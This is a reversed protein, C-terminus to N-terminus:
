WWQAEGDRKELIEERKKGFVGLIKSDLGFWEMECKGKCLRTKGKEKQPDEDRIRRLTSPNGRLLKQKPQPVRSERGVFCAFFFFIGRFWSRPLMTKKEIKRREKGSGTDNEVKEWFGVRMLVVREAQSSLIELKGFLLVEDRGVVMLRVDVVGDDDHGVLDAAAHSIQGELRLRSLVLGRSLLLLRDGTRVDRRV